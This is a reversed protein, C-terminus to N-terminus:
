RVITFAASASNSRNGAADTAVIVARYSGPALKRVQGKSRYRGSFAMRQAGAVKAARKFAVVKKYRKCRRAKRNRKTPKVCRTKGGVKQRRGALVRDVRISVSGPVSVNYALTSGAKARKKTAATLAMIARGVRFRKRTFRAKSVAPPRLIPVVPAAVEFSGSDCGGLQPRAVGRQDTAPCGPATAANFAQSGALLAHTDTPGGNNALPALLAARAPGFSCDPDTGVNGGVSTITALSATRCDGKPNGTVISNRITAAAAELDIGHGAGASGNNAVTSNILTLTGGSVAMGAGPAVGANNGSVTSNILTVVGPFSANLEVSDVGAGGAAKNGSITTRILTLTGTNAIAGGEDGVENGTMAVDTLTVIGASHIGGGSFQHKGNRITVGSIDVIAPPPGGQVTLVANANGDIITTRASTGRIALKGKGVQATLPNPLVYTGPALVIEDDSPALNAESMATQLQAANGVNFTQASAAAPVLLAAVILALGATKVGPL